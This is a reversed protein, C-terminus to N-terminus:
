YNVILTWLGPIGRLGMTAQLPDIAYSVALNVASRILGRTPLDGWASLFLLSKTSFALGSLSSCFSQRSLKSTDARKVLTGTFSDMAM